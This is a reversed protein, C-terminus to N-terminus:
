RRALEFAGRNVLDAVVELFGPADLHPRLTSHDLRPPGTLLPAAFALPRPLALTQGDVFLDTGAQRRIFAVRSANSRVIAGGSAIWRRLAM